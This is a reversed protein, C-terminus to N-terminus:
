ISNLFKGYILYKIHGIVYFSRYCHPVILPEGMVDFTITGDSVFYVKFSLAM